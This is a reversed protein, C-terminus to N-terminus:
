PCHNKSNAAILPWATEEALEYDGPLAAIALSALPSDSVVVVLADGDFVLLRHNDITPITPSLTATTMLVELSHHTQLAPPVPTTIRLFDAAFRVWM